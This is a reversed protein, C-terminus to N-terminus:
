LGEGHIVAYPTKLIIFLDTLLSQKAAYNADLKIREVFGIRSRGSVQWLGTIGPKVTLAKQVWEECAPNSARQSDLEDQYFARPGVLSMEGRLVNILQPLEDISTKRLIAGVKTIRPDNNLKYSNNKYQELYKKYKPDTRLLQHSNKIMSRFKLMRFTEGNKGVRNSSEVFVPGESSLKIAIASVLLIPSFLILGLIAGVIDFIRKVQGYTMSSTDRSLLASARM